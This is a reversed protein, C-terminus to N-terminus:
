KNKICRVSLGHFKYGGVKTVEAAKLDYVVCHYIYDDYGDICWWDSYGGKYGSKGTLADRKGTNYSYFGSSKLVASKTLQKAIPVELYFLLEMWESYSPIHYGIPALGRSDSVAYWNYLKEGEYICYAGKKLEKLRRWEQSNEVHSIPDGNQYHTVDLNVATWTQNGLQIDQSISEFSIILFFYFLIKKM